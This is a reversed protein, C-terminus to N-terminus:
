VHRYGREAMSVDAPWKVRDGVKAGYKVGDTSQVCEQLARNHPHSHADGWYFPHVVANGTHKPDSPHPFLDSFERGGGYVNIEVGYQRDHPSELLYDEHAKVCSEPTCRPWCRSKPDKDQPELDWHCTARYVGSSNSLKVCTHVLHMNDEFTPLVESEISCTDRNHPAIQNTGYASSARLYGSAPHPPAYEKM